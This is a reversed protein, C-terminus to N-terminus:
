RPNLAAYERLVKKPVCMAWADLVLEQMEAVTLKEMRAYVWQYRLDAGTPMLFKDPDSNVLAERWERPHGFGMIGDREIAVYVIRGVYLKRKGRVVGETSRPLGLGYAFVDDVTVLDRGGRAGPLAAGVV